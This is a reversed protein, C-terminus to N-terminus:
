SNGCHMCREPSWRNGGAVTWALLSCSPRWTRNQRRAVVLPFVTRAGAQHLALAASHLHAGSAYLDDVLLVRRGGVLDPRAVYATASSVNRHVRGPGPVLADALLPAPQVMRVTLELPHAGPRGRLSPVVAVADVGEPAVCALHLELFAGILRALRARRHRATQEDRGKYQVLMSYIPTDPAALSIPTVRRLPVRLMRGILRCSWCIRDPGDVAGCCVECVGPGPPKVAICGSGAHRHM